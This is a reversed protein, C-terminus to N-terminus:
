RKFNSIRYPPTVPTSVYNLFEESASFSLVKCLQQLKYLFFAFVDIAVWFTFCSSCVVGMVSALESSMLNKQLKHLAVIFLYASNKKSM